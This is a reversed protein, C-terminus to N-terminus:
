SKLIEAVIEALLNEGDRQFDPKLDAKKCVKIKRIESSDKIWVLKGSDILYQDVSGLAGKFLSYVPSGLVVAERNMTGGAGVVLDSHYVLNPGDLVHSPFRVNQLGLTEYKKRQKVDRPLLIIFTNEHSAIYELAEDFLPNEFQHYASVESAPRMTVIIKDLPINESKLFNSDPTFGSLYVNEKLGNYTVIQGESAGYPYLNQKAFVSPVVIKRAVRCVIHAGPNGEYDDFALFPVNMWKTALAQSFSGCSIALDIDHGRLLWIMRLSRTVIAWGKGAFTAGGHAGVVTHSLGFRDALPVAESQQRTTVVVHHGRKKLENIIPYMFLVQPSNALDVWINM